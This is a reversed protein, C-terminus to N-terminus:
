RAFHRPRAPTPHRSACSTSACGCTEALLAADGADSKAGSMVEGDRWTKIANPSVPVVPHGAELLVDVLRGNPREIAIPIGAPDGVRALAAILRALGDATHAVPFAAVQKGAPDLVCVAHIETAWDIGVFFLAEPLALSM